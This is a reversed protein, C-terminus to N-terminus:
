ELSDKFILHAIASVLMVSVMCIVFSLITNKALRLWAVINVSFLLLPIALAVTINCATLSLDNSFTIWPQNGLLMGGGYCIVVPSLIRVIKLRSELWLTLVPVLVALGIQLVSVWINM